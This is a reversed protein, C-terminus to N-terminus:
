FTRCRVKLSIHNQQFIVFNYINKVHGGTTKKLM